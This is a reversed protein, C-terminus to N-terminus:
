TTAHIVSCCLRPRVVIREKAAPELIGAVSDLLFFCLRQIDERTSQAPAGRDLGGSPARPLSTFFDSNYLLHVTYGTHYCLMDSASATFCAQCVPRLFFTRDCVELRRYHLYLLGLLRNRYSLPSATLPWHSVDFISNCSLFSLVGRGCVVRDFLFRYLAGQLFKM